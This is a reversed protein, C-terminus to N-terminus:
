TELGAALGRAEARLAAARPRAFARPAGCIWRGKSDQRFGAGAMRAVTLCRRDTVPGERHRDFHRVSKFVAGCARCMCTLSGPRLHEAGRRQRTSTQSDSGNQQAEDVGRTRPANQKTPM